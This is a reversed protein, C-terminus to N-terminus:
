CGVSVNFADVARSVASLFTQAAARDSAGLETSICSRLQEMLDDARDNCAKLANM